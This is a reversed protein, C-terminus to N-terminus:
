PHGGVVGRDHGHEGEHDPGLQEAVADGSQSGFAAIAAVALGVLVLVTVVAGATLSDRVLLALGGLGGAVLMLANRQRGVWARRSGTAVRSWGAAAVRRLPLGAVFSVLAVLVAVGVVIRVGDRLLAVLTDFIGSAADRPLAGSGLADLYTSRAVGLAAILLLMAIAVGIAARLLGRRWSRALWVSGALCLLALLPLLIAVAKLLRVGRQADVLAQSQLLQIQGDVSAPIAGALRDLGREQLGARVRDVAPSLDLYVTDGELVLRKSRGGTLLEVIRTHARRNAETWLQEFRESQTFDDIRTRIFSQLGRELAPALVDAREPLAERILGDFDIRENIAGDLRDAVAKQVAPQAAIPAVTNVYRDTDLLTVRLWIAVLSLVALGCGLVLLAVASARRLRDRTMGRRQLAVNEVRLREVEARLADDDSVDTM